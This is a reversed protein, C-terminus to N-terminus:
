WALFAASGKPIMAQTSYRDSGNQRCGDQSISGNAVPNARVTVTVAPVKVFYKYDLSFVRSYQYIYCQVNCCGIHLSM